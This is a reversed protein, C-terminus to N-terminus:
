LCVQIEGGDCGLLVLQRCPLLAISSINFKNSSPIRNGRYDSMVIRSAAVDNSQGDQQPEQPLSMFVAKRGSAACLLLNSEGPISVLGDNNFQHFTANM